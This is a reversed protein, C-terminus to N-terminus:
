HGGNGRFHRRPDRSPTLVMKKLRADMFAGTVGKQIKNIDGRCTFM